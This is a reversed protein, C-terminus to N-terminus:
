APIVLLTAIEFPRLALTVANDEVDLPVGNEEMLNVLRAQKIPLGFSIKARARRNAHEFVRLILGDGAEAQKM